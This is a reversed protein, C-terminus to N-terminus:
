ANLKELVCDMDRFNLASVNGLEDSSNDVNAVCLCGQDFEEEEGVSTSWWDRAKFLSM